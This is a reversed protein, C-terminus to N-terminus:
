QSMPRKGFFPFLLLGALFGGVHAEWAVPANTMGLPQSALGAVLNSAFWVGIFAIAQRNRLIQMLSPEPAAEARERDVDGFSGPDFVFRAAAGMFGAIAGSAGVVPALDYFHTALHAGAGAIAAIAGLMLFRVPGIRRAVASGFAVLWFGNLALHTWNGHLFAYTLPTWWVTHADAAIRLFEQVTEGDIQSASASLRLHALFGSQDILFSVRGPIFALPAIVFDFDQEPTLLGRAAQVLTLVALLIVVVAPANFIRERKQNPM